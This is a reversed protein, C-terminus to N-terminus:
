LLMPDFPSMQDSLTAQWFLSNSRKRTIGAFGPAFKM